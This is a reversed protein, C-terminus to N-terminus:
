CPPPIGPQGGTDAPRGSVVYRINECCSQGAALCDAPKTSDVTQVEYGASAFLGATTGVRRVGLYDGSRTCRNAEAGTCRALRMSRWIRAM